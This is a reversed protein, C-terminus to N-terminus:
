YEQDAELARLRDRLNAARHDAREDFIELAERWCAVARSTDGIYHLSTGLIALTAAFDSPIRLDREINLAKECLVIAESHAGIHQKALAMHRWSEDERDGAQQRLNLERKAHQLAQHYNGLGTCAASLNGEIVAELRGRQAGPSLPLAAQLWVAAEAHEGHELHMLGLENLVQAELVPDRVDRAVELATQLTAAADDWRSVVYQASAWLTLAHAEAVRDGCRRAMDVGLRCMDYVDDWRGRWCSTIATAYTLLITLRQLQHRGADRCAAIMNDRESDLWAQAESALTFKLEPYTSVEFELAPHWSAHAPYVKVYVAIAHHAYWELLKKRIHDLEDPDYDYNARDAAYARLLDHLRYRDRSVPEVLYADALANLVWGAEAVTRGTVAAAAHLSFEPGPHLGLRRFAHAQESSLRNYSWDFVARVATDEDGRLSLANWRRQDDAIESVLDAIDLHPQTAARGAAIRLALPLRACQRILQAVAHPEADLRREGVIERVLDTAEEPTLLDLTVRTAGDNVVLGTLSARSTVLVLSSPSGPLLPRVQSAAHANDLLILLRRGALMSRYLGVRADLSVPIRQSPVGLAYLFGDLVEAASAPEGPGYGRLNAYLTGDPFHHQVRHAWHVALTTKGVGATGDLASIIVADSGSREGNPLLADLAAVHEARGVFGSAALPLQRPVAHWSPRHRNAM